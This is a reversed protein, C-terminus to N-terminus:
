RPRTRIEAIIDEVTTPWGLGLAIAVRHLEADHSARERTKDSRFSAPAAMVVPRLSGLEGSRGCHPCDILLRVDQDNRLGALREMAESLNM